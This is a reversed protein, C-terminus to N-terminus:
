LHEAYVANDFAEVDYDVNKLNSAEHDIVVIKRARARKLVPELNESSNPAVCVAQVHKAILNELMQVQLAADASPPGIPEVTTDSNETGFKKVGEAMRDFWNVGGIKVVTTIVIGGAARVPRLRAVIGGITLPTARLWDRRRITTMANM